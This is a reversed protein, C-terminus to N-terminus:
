ANSALPQPGRHQLTRNEVCFVKSRWQFTELSQWRVSHYSDLENIVLFAWWVIVRPSGGRKDTKGKRKEIM